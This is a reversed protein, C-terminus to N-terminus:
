TLSHLICHFVILKRLVPVAKLHACDDESQCRRYRPTDEWGHGRRLVLFIFDTKIQYWIRTHDTAKAFRSRFLGPGPRGDNSAFEIVSQNQIEVSELRTKGKIEKRYLAAREQRIFRGIWVEFADELAAETEGPVLRIDLDAVLGVVAMNADLRDQEVLDEAEIRVYCQLWGVRKMYPKPEVIRLVGGVAPERRIVGGLESREVAFVIRSGERHDARGIGCRLQSREAGIRIWRMRAAAIGSEAPPQSRTADSTVREGNGHCGDWLTPLLRVTSIQSTLLAM